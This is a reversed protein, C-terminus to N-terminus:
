FTAEGPVSAPFLISKLIDNLDNLLLRNKKSFDLPENVLQGNKYYGVGVADKRNPYPKQNFQLPQEYVPTGDVGLFRIPNTHRNEDESLVLDLHHLIDASKYGMAHLQDNIYEQGLFEYLRNFADNDSVLFIKKIYHEISPSGDPTSPDNYVQTQGSYAAETIM